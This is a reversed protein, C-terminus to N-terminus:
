KCSNRDLDTAFATVQELGFLSLNNIMGDFIKVPAAGNLSLGSWAAM